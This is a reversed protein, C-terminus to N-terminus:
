LTTYGANDAMELVKGSDKVFTQLLFSFLLEADGGAELVQFYRNQKRDKHVQRKQISTSASVYYVQEKTDPKDLKAYHGCSDDTNHKQVTNRKM